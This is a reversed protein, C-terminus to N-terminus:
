SKSLIPIPQMHKQIQADNLLQMSVSQKSEDEACKQKKKSIKRM